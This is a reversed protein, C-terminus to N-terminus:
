GLAEQYSFQGDRLQLHYNFLGDLGNLQHSIVILTQGLETMASKLLQAVVQLSQYDLGKFPEDLLLVPAGMILMCVLQVKKKQGESLSYLVQNRHETLNLDALMSDIRHQTYFNTQSHKISLALEENVTVNVFQTEADQFMLNVTTAYRSRRIKQINKQQYTILGTYNTLRTLASFFTSKGTGNAGTILTARHAMLAFTSPGLLLRGNQVLKLDQVSMMEPQQQPLSFQQSLPRTFPQFLQYREDRDLEKIQRSASDLAFVNDAITEYETLDHDALIVTKGQNVLRKLNLLLSHRAEPDVSAFPEDLLIVQSNMAVIIALAVKQKEGGSLQTLTRHKLQSIGIFALAKDLRDNIENAPVQLNELAFVLEHEVTDMAFQQNPDQFLLTVLSSRQSAAIDSVAHEGLTITGSLQHGSFEPYLGAISKLLTSKGTGSPGSLLSFRHDPFTVNVHNLTPRPAHDYQFTFDHVTVNVM